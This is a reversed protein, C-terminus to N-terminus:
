PSEMVGRGYLRTWALARTLSTLTHIRLWESGSAERIGEASASYYFDTSLM